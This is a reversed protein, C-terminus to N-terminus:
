KECYADLVEALMAYMKMGRRISSERLYDRNATLLNFSQVVREEKKRKKANRINGIIYEKSLFEPHQSEWEREQNLIRNVLEQSTTRRRYVEYTFREIIEPPLECNWSITPLRESDNCLEDTLPERKCVSSDEELGQVPSADFRKEDSPYNEQAIDGSIDTEYEASSEVKPLNEESEVTNEAQDQVVDLVLESNEDKENDDIEDIDDPNEEINSVPNEKVADNEQNEIEELETELVKEETAGQQSEDPESKENVVSEETVVSKKDEAKKGKKDSKKSKASSKEKREPEPILAALDDEMNLIDFVGNDDLEDIDNRLNRGRNREEMKKRYDIAM